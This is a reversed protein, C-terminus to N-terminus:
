VGEHLTLTKGKPLSVIAKKFDGRRGYSHGFRVTKGQANIIRVATPKVGYVKEVAEAVSKKGASKAVLFTYKNESEAVTAKETVLPRILVRFALSKPAVPAKVELPVEEKVVKKGKEEVVPTKKTDTTEKLQAEKKKKTWKDLLGM